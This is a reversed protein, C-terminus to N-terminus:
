ASVLISAAIVECWAIHRSMHACPPATCYTPFHLATVSSPPLSARVFVHVSVVSIAVIRRRDLETLKWRFTAAM